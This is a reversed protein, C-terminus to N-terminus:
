QIGLIAGIKIFTHTVFIAQPTLFAIGIMQAFLSRKGPAVEAVMGAVGFLTVFFSFAGSVTGFALNGVNQTSLPHGM